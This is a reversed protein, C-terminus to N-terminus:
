AKRREGWVGCIAFFAFVNEWWSKNKEHFFWIMAKKLIIRHILSTWSVRNRVTGKECGRELLLKNKLLGFLTFGSYGSGPWMLVRHPTWCIATSYPEGPSAWLSEWFGGAQDGSCVGRRVCCSTMTAKTPSSSHCSQLVIVCDPSMLLNITVCEM